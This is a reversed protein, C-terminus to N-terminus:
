AEVEVRELSETPYSWYEGFDGDDLRVDCGGRVTAQVTGVSGVTHDMSEVWADDWLATEEIRKVIRVRDGVKFAIM